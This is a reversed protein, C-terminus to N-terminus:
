EMEPAALKFAWRTFCKDCYYARVCCQRAGCGYADEERDITDVEIPNGGCSCYINEIDRNM